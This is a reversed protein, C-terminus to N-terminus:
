RIWYLSCTRHYLAVIRGLGLSVTLNRMIAVVAKARQRVEKPGASAGRWSNFARLASAMSLRTVVRLVIQTQRAAEDLWALWQEFAAAMDRHMFRGVTRGLVVRQRCADTVM